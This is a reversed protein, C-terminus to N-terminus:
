NIEIMRPPRMKAEEKKPIELKLVGDSYQAKIKESDVVDKPLTFTRNFSQYSFEKRTYDGEKQESEANRESSISLTNGELQIKIRFIDKNPHKELDFGNVYQSNIILDGNNEDDSKTTSKIQLWM